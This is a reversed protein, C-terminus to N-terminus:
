KLKSIILKDKSIMVYKWVPSFGAFFHVYKGYIYDPVNEYVEYDIRDEKIGTSSDVPYFKTLKGDRDKTYFNLM